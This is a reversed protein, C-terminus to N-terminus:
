IITLRLCLLWPCLIRKGTLLILAQTCEMLVSRVLRRHVRYDKKDCVGDLFLKQTFVFFFRFFIKGNSKPAYNTKTIKYSQLYSM